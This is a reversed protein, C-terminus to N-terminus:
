AFIHLTRGEEKASSSQYYEALKDAELIVINDNHYGVVTNMIKSVAIVPFTCPGAEVVRDSSFELLDDVKISSLIDAM